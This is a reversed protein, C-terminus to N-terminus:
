SFSVQVFEISVPKLLFILRSRLGRSQHYAQKMLEFVEADSAVMTIDIEAM